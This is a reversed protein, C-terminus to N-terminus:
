QSAEQALREANKLNIAKIDEGSVSQYGNSCNLKARRAEVDMATGLYFREKHVTSIKKDMQSVYKYVTGACALVLLVLAWLIQFLGRLQEWKVEGSSQKGSM